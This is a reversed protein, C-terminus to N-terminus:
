TLEGDSECCAAAFVFDAFDDEDDSEEDTDSAVEEESM